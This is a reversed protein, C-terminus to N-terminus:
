ASSRVALRKGVSAYSAEAIGARAEERLDQAGYANPTRRFAEANGM